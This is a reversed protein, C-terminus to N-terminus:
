NTIKIYYFPYLCIHICYIYIGYDYFKVNKLTGFCNGWNMAKGLYNYNNGQTNIAPTTITSYQYLGDEYLTLTSGDYTVLVTHWNNDNLVINGVCPSGYGGSSVAWYLHIQGECFLIQLFGNSGGSSTIGMRSTYTTKIMFSFSRRNNGQVSSLSTTLDEFNSGTFTFISGGLYIYIFLLTLNNANYKYM